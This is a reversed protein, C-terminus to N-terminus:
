LDYFGCITGHVPVSVYHWTPNPFNLIAGTGISGIYKVQDQLGSRPWADSEDFDFKDTIQLCIFAKGTCCSGVGTLNRQHTGIACAYGPSAFSDYSFLGNLLGQKQQQLNCKSRLRCLMQEIESLTRDAGMRDEMFSRPLEYPTPDGIRWKWVLNAFVGLCPSPEPELWHQAYEPDMYSLGQLGLLDYSNLPNNGVFGYPNLGGPEGIPDRNIWRGTSPNYYRYGYYAMSSESDTYKTSWRIPNADAIDGNVRIPEGFPGYEYRASWEGTTSDVLAGVNGNGDYAVFCNTASTGLAIGMVDVYGPVDQNTYQNRNYALVTM